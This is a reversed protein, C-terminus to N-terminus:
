YVMFAPSKRLACLRNKPLFCSIDFTIKKAFSLKEPAFIIDYSCM